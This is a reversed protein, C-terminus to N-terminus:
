RAAAAFPRLLTTPDLGGGALADICSFLVGALMRTDDFMPLGALEDVGFWGFPHVPTTVPTPDDALALYQHDVHVHPQDLHNDVPVDQETIWWPATLVTHPFGVPVSPTPVDILRVTLGSEEAVERLAAEVQTEDAEVHGGPIMWRGLRPHEILGLRWGRPHQCFVFVSATAHKVTM